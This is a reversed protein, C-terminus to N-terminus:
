KNEVITGGAIRAGAKGAPDSVNDDAKEHIIISTGGERLLSNEKGQELTVNKVTIKVSVTGDKSVEINPLDGAHSGKPNEMGHEKKFPNFHGGASMFDPPEVTGKEHIHIAHAGAALNKLEGKIYVGKWCNSIALTGISEGKSNIMEAKAEPYKKCATLSLMLVIGSFMAVETLFRTKKTVM